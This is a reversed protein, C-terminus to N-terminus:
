LGILQALLKDTIASYQSRLKMLRRIVDALQRDSLESLRRQCNERKLAETGYTRLEYMVAEVTSPAARMKRRVRLTVEYLSVFEGASATPSNKIRPGAQAPNSL